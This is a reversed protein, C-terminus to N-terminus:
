YCINPRIDLCSFKDYKEIIENELHTPIIKTKKNVVETYLEITKQSKLEYACNHRNLTATGTTKIYLEKYNICAFFDTLEEGPSDPTQINQKVFM